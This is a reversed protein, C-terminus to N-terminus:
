AGPTQTASDSIGVVEVEFTLVKDALPHNLDLVVKDEDFEAIRAPIQKGDPTKIGIFIGEELEMEAPVEKRPIAHMYSEIRNGYADEPNLSFTKKENLEMGLIAEEFGQIIQGCGVKVEMPRDKETSDFVDGNELTGKYHVSVYKGNEVKQM